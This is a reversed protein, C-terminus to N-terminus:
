FATSLKASIRKVYMEIRKADAPRISLSFGRGYWFYDKIEVFGAIIILVGILLYIAIGWQRLSDLIPMLILGAILYTIFVAFTYVLGHLLMREPKKFTKLLYALLFVLVGFACHNISDIVAAGVLLPISIAEVM